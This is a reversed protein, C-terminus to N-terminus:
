RPLVGYFDLLAEDVVKSRIAKWYLRDEQKWLKVANRISEQKSM